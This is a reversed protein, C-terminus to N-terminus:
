YLEINIREVQNHVDEGLFVGAVDEFGIPTDSVFFECEGKIDSTNLLTKEQLVKKAYIATEKGSDVLHVDEGIVDSIADKIIPYHTCGLIITDVGKEMLPDLYRKIVLRVIEDNKNIFGNEVLPVFLPCDQEFVKIDPNFKCITDRYSHSKITASTGIVGIKGNKTAEVAAYCTPSVVGTYPVPLDHKLNVAVSSVTGCAAIVMKVNHKLLFKADQFAYKKITDDSRTGYPVRGTDGFYVINENPLIRRLERVATLGGLGSDFVGIPANSM